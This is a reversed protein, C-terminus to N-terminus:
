FLGLGQQFNVVLNQMAFLDFVNDWVTLLFKLFQFLERGFAAGV